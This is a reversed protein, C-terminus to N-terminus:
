QSTDSDEGLPMNAIWKPAPIAPHRAVLMLIGALIVLCPVEINLELRETQRLISLCSAILLFSSVVFTVKDFGAIVITLVGTIALGLIWIWNIGPAIGLTTLLWGSGVTILLLPLVLTQKASRNM